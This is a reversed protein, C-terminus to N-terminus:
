LVWDWTVIRQLERHRIGDFKKEKRDEGRKGEPPCLAMIIGHCKHRRAHHCEAEDKRRPM